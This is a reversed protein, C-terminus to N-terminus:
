RRNTEKIINKNISPKQTKKPKEPQYTLSKKTTKKLLSQKNKIRAEHLLGNYKELMTKYVHNEYAPDNASVAFAIIDFEKNPYRHTVKSPKGMYKITEEKVKGDKPSLTFVSDDARKLVLKVDTETDDLYISGGLKGRGVKKEPSLIFSRTNNEPTVKDVWRSPDRFINPNFDDKKDYVRTIAFTENNQRFYDLSEKTVREPPLWNPNTKEGPRLDNAGKTAITGTEVFLGKVKVTNSDKRTNAIFRLYRKVIEKSYTYSQWFPTQYDNSVTGFAMIACNLDKKITGAKKLEESRKEVSSIFNTSFTKFSEVNNKYVDPSVYKGVGWREPNLIKDDDHIEFKIPGVTDILTISNKENKPEFLKLMSSFAELTKKNDTGAPIYKVNEEDNLGDTKRSIGVILCEKDKKLEEIYAQGLSGSAGTVFAIKSFNNM